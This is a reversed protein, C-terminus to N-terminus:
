SLTGLFFLKTVGSPFTPYNRTKVLAATLPLFWPTLCCPPSPAATDATSIEVPIGEIWINPPHFKPEELGNM